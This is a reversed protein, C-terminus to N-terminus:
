SSTSLSEFMLSNSNNDENGDFVQFFLSVIRFGIYDKLISTVEIEKELNFGKGACQLIIPIIYYLCLLQM